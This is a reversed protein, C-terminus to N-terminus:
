APQDGCLGRGSIAVALGDHWMEAKLLKVPTPPLRLGELERELAAQTDEAVDGLFHLTVHLHSLPVLAVREPWRWTSRYRDLDAQAGLPLMLGLFLRRTTPASELTQDTGPQADSTTM